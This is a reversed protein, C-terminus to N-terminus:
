CCGFDDLCQYYADLSQTGPAHCITSAIYGCGPIKDHNCVFNVPVPLASQAPLDVAYYHVGAVLCGVLALCIMFLVLRALPSTGSQTDAM